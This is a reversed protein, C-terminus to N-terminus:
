HLRNSPRGLCAMTLIWMGRGKLGGDREGGCSGVGGVTWSMLESNQTQEKVKIGDQEESGQKYVVSDVTRNKIEDM